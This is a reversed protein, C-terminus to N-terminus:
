LYSMEEGEVNSGEIWARFSIRGVVGLFPANNSPFALRTQTPPCQEQITQSSRRILVFSLCYWWWRKKCSADAEQRGEVMGDILLRDTM